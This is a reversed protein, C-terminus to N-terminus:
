FRYHYNLDYIDFFFVCVTDRMQPFYGIIYMYKHM